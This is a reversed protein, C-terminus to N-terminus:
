VEEKDKKRLKSIGYAAGAIALIAVGGDIPAPGPGPPPGGQAMSQLIFVLNFVFSIALFKKM